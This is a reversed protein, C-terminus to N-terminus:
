IFNRTYEDKRIKILNRRNLGCSSMCLVNYVILISHISFYKKVIKAINWSNLQQEVKENGGLIVALRKLYWIIQHIKLL